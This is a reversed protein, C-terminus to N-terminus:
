AADLGLAKKQDGSLGSLLQKKATTSFRDWLLLGVTCLLLKNVLEVGETFLNIALDQTKKIPKIQAISTHDIWTGPIQGHVVASTKSYWKKQQSVLGLSQQVDTFRASHKKHYDILEQKDVFYEPDRILTQLESPHTRFYTYYLACEFVSRIRAAAPKYLSLAVLATVHQGGIQMERVFSLAPNGADANELQLAWVALRLNAAAIKATAEDDKLFVEVNDDWKVAKM